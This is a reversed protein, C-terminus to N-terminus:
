RLIPSITFYLFIIHYQGTTALCHQTYDDDNEEKRIDSEIFQTKNQLAEIFCEGRLLLLANHFNRVKDFKTYSM